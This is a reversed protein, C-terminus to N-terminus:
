LWLTHTAVYFLLLVWISVYALGLLMDIAIAKKESKLNSMWWFEFVVVLPVVLVSGFYIVSMLDALGKRRFWAYYDPSYYQDLFIDALLALM